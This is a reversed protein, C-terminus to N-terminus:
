GEGYIKHCKVCNPHDLNEFALAEPDFSAKIVAPEGTFIKAMYVTEDDSNIKKVKWAAGCGGSDRTVFSPIAEPGFDIAKYEATYEANITVTSTDYAREFELKVQKFEYCCKLCPMLTM